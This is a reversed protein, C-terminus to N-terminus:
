CSSSVSPIRQQSLFLVLQRGAISVPRIGIDSGFCPEDITSVPSLINTVLATSLPQIILVPKFDRVPLEITLKDFRTINTCCSKKKLQHNSDTQAFDSKSIDNICGCAVAQQIGLGPYLAIGSLREHCYHAQYSLGIVGFMIILAMLVSISTKLITHLLGSKM